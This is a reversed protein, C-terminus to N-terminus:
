TVKRPFWNVPFDYFDDTDAAALRKLPEYYVLYETFLDVNSVHNKVAKASLGVAELWEIIPKVGDVWLRGFQKWM